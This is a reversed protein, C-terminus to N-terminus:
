DLEPRSNDGPIFGGGHRAYNAARRIRSVTLPASQIAFTSMEHRRLDIVPNSSDSVLDSGQQQPGTANVPTDNSNGKMRSQASRFRPKQNNLNQSVFDNSANSSSNHSHWKPITVGDLGLITWALSTSSQQADPITSKRDPLRNSSMLVLAIWVLTYEIALLIVWVPLLVARCFCVMIKVLIFATRRSTHSVQYFAASLKEDKKEREKGQKAAKRRVERQKTSHREIDFESGEPDDSSRYNETESYLIGYLHFAGNLESLPLVVVIGELLYLLYVWRSTQKAVRRAPPETNLHDEHLALARDRWDKKHHRRMQGQLKHTVNHVVTSFASIITNLNFILLTTVITICPLTIAFAKITESNREIIQM